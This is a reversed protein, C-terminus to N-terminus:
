VDHQYAGIDSASVKAAVYLLWPRTREGLHLARGRVVPRARREYGLAARGESQGGSARLGRGVAGGQATV